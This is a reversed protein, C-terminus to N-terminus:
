RCSPEELSLLIDPLPALFRLRPVSALHKPFRRATQRIPSMLSVYIALLIATPVLQAILGGVLSFVDGALWILVFLVSLGQGSQLTYNEWFQPSYVIIRHPQDNLPIMKFNALSVLLGLLDLWVTPQDPPFHFNIFSARPSVACSLPENAM